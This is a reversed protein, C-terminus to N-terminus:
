CLINVETLYDMTQDNIVEEFNLFLQYCQIQDVVKLILKTDLKYLSNLNALKCGTLFCSFKVSLNCILTIPIALMDASDKFFKSSLM